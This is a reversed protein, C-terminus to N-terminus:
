AQRTLLDRGEGNVPSLGAAKLALNLKDLDLKGQTNLNEPDNLLSEAVVRAPDDPVKEGEESSAEVVELVVSIPTPDLEKLPPFLEADVFDPLELVADPSVQLEDLNEVIGESNLQLIGLMTVVSENKLEVHRVLNAM